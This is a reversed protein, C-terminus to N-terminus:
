LFRLLHHEKGIAGLTRVEKVQVNARSSYSFIPSRQSIDIYVCLHLLGAAAPVYEQNVNKKCVEFFYGLVLVQSKSDVYGEREM